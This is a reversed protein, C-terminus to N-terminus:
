VGGRLKTSIPEYPKGDSRFFKTFFEYYELRLTQIGVIFGEFGIVVLNGLVLVLGKWFWSPYLNAAGNAGLFVVMMLVTHNIAFAAVRVFSVTNSLLGIITEFLGFFGSILFSEGEEKKFIIKGLLGELAIVLLSIIAIATIVSGSILEKGTAFKYGIPIAISLYFVLGALGSHSFLAKTLDKELFSNVINLIMGLTLFLVGWGVAVAMLKSSNELPHLWLPALVDECGFVSGYLIGFFASSLGVWFAIDFLFSVRKKGKLKGILKGILGLASLTLGHGLDGFMAGYMIMYSVATFPTPDIERYRPTGFMTVFKEFARFLSFNRLKTPIITKGELNEAPEIFYIFKGDTIEEVRKLLEDRKRRPVWGSLLYVRRTKLAEAKLHLMTLNYDISYSLRKLTPGFQKAMRKLRLDIDFLAEDLMFIERIIKTQQKSIDGGKPLGVDEFFSGKLASELAEKNSSSVVIFVLNSDEITDVIRIMSPMGSLSSVLGSYHASPVLGLKIQFHKLDSLGKLEVGMRKFFKIKSLEIQLEKRRDELKRQEALIKKITKEIRTLENEIESTSFYPKESIINGNEETIWKGLVNLIETYRRKFNRFRVTQQEVDERGLTFEKVEDPQIKSVEFEGFSVIEKSVLDFDRDLVILKVRDMPEPFFM